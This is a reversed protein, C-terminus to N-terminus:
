PKKCIISGVKQAGACSSSQDMTGTFSLFLTSDDLALAGATIPLTEPTSPPLGGMTVPVECPTTLIQDAAPQATIGTTVDFHLTGGVFSDAAYSAIVGSGSPGLTLTGDGGSAVFQQMGDSVYHTALHSTCALAGTPLKSDASPADSPGSSPGGDCVLWVGAPTSRPGCEGGDGSALGTLSLFVTGTDYTLAGAGASLEAAYPQENSVGIGLVCFGTFGAAMQGAPSLTASTDSTLAFVFSESQGNADLYEANLTAGTQTVVLSADEIFGSSNLFSGDETFTGRACHAYTGIPFALEGAREDEVTRGGCAAAQLALFLVSFARARM